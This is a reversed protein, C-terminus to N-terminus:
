SLLIFQLAEFRPVLLQERLRCFEPLPKRLDAALDIAHDIVSRKKERQACCGPRASRSM